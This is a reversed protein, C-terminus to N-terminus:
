KKGQAKQALEAVDAWLKKWADRERAPLAALPRDERVGALDADQQWHRVKNLVEARQAPPGDDLRKRYIDLDARLWDLAQRRLRAAEAAGPADDRGPGAGALAACCAADYRLDLNDGLKPDATFADACLRAAARYCRGAGPTDTKALAQGRNYLAMLGKRLLEPDRLKWLTALGFHECAAEWDGAADAALGAEAESAASGPWGARSRSALALAVLMDARAGPGDAAALRSRSRELYGPAFGPDEALLRGTTELAEQLRGARWATRALGVQRLSDGPVNRALWRRHFLAALWDGRYEAAAADAAHWAPALATRRAQDEAWPDYGGPEPRRSWVRVVDGDPVAVRRGDPSTNSAAPAPPVPEDLRREGTAADWVLRRGFADASVIRSGDPSYCVSYVTDTHGRLVLAQQGSRADWVRVTHDRSASALRTGDPSYSVSYVAGAHGRLVLAEQGSRADWVRVANDLSASALRTGDPSYCVSLVPNTHGRLVLAEQGTCADWVRVTNDSSASALRTGDPSYCVSSVAGAHGRLLLPTGAARRRLYGYEWGRYGPGVADLAAAAGAHDGAQLYADARGIQAVYAQRQAERKQEDARAAERRARAAEVDARQAERRASGAEAQATREAQGAANRQRV